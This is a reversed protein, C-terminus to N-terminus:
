LLCWRAVHEEGAGPCESTRIIYDVTEADPTITLVGHSVNWQGPVAEQAFDRPTVTPTSAAAPGLTTLDIHINGTCGRDATWLDFDVFPM